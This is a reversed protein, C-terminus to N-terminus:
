VDVPGNIIDLGTMDRFERFPGPHLPKTLTDAFMHKNSIHRLVITKKEVQERIWHHQVEIHKTRAHFVTKLTLSVAGTSDSCLVTPRPHLISINSLLGRLWVIEQGAETTAKYEAETSSLSVTSQLKSRWSVAAGNMKFLYGTTSRRTTPDGAWDSDTHCDPFHWSQNGVVTSDHGDYILGLLITGKLYRLVHLGLNWATMSPRALHQSLAGVAYAIDPRTGQAIYMLSGVLSNYPLKSALFEEVDADSARLIKTGGPFPTSAPKCDEVRFRELVTQIMAPQSLSYGQSPTSHIEIGVVCHAPGLDEMRWKTKLVEKIYTINNGTIAMDDVHLYILTERGDSTKGYWLCPDHPNQILNMSKFKDKVEDSWCRASQKLGYLAKRLRAVKGNAREEDYGEPLELFIEEKLDSNLFAAIADM